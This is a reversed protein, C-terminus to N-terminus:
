ATTTCIGTDNTPVITAVNSASAAANLQWKSTLSNEWGWHIHEFRDRYEIVSSSQQVPLSHADDEFDLLDLVHNLTVGCRQKRTPAAHIASVGDSGQDLSIYMLPWKECEEDITNVPGCECWEM